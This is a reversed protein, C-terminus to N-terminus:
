KFNKTKLHTKLHNVENFLKKNSINLQRNESTLKKVQNQFSINKAQLKDIFEKLNVM